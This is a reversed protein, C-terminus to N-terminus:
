PRPLFALCAVYTGRQDVRVVDDWAAMPLDHPRLPVQIIGASNVLVDIPGCEREIAAACAEVGNEDGVDAAYARGGVEAAVAQAKTLDRDVVVVLDGNAALERVCAAGIGSAGGGTV